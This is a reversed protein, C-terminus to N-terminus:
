GASSLGARLQIWCQRQGLTHSCGAKPDLRCGFGFRCSLPTVDSTVLVHLPAIGYAQM